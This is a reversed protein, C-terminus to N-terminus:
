EFTRSRLGPWWAPVLAIALLLAAWPWLVSGGPYPVLIRTLGALALLLSVSMALALRLRLLFTALSRATSGGPREKWLGHPRVKGAFGELVDPDTGPALFAAGVAAGTTVLVMIALRMWEEGVTALLLPAAGLSVGMAAVESWLNIRHWLWRLM